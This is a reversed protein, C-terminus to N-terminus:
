NRGGKSGSGKTSSENEQMQETKKTTQTEYINKTKLVCVRLIESFGLRRLKDIIQFYMSRLPGDNHVVDDSVAYKSLCPPIPKDWKGDIGCSIM